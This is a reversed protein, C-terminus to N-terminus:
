VVVFVIMIWYDDDCDCYDDDDDDEYDCVAATIRQYIL